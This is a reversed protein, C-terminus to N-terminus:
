VPSVAPAAKASLVVPQGLVTVRVIETGPCGGVDTVIVTETGHEVVEVVVEVGVEVVDVEAVVEVDAGREVVVVEEVVGDEM